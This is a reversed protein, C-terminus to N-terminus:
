SCATSRTPSSRSSSRATWSRSWSTPSSPRPSSPGCRPSTRARAGRHRLRDHRAAPRAARAADLVPQGVVLPVGFAPSDIVAGIELDQSGSPGVVTLTDGVAWDEDHMTTRQVAVQGAALADHFSGEVVETDISRGIADPDIGTIAFSDRRRARLRDRVHRRCARRAARARGRGGARAGPGPRRGAPHLRHDGRPVRDREHVGAHDRRDGRRRRRPGHRDDACGRHERHSAPQAHRQRPGAARGAALRQVPGRARRLIGRALIPSAALVGIVVAGAGYGSCRAPTTAPRTWCRPRSRSSGRSWSPSRRRDRAPAALAGARHDRRAPGRGAPRAGCSPGPLAAALVSVLTGVLVSVVITFGDLPVQGTLQM